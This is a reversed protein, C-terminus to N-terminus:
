LPVNMVQALAANQRRLFRLLLGCAGAAGLCLSVRRPDKAEQSRRRLWQLLAASWPGPQWLDM